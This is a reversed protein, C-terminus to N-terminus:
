EQILPMYCSFTFNVLDNIKSDDNSTAKDKGRGNALVAM